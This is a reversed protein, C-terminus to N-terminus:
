EEDGLPRNGPSTRIVGFEVIYQGMSTRSIPADLGYDPPTISDVRGELLLHVSADAAPPLQVLPNTFVTFEERIESALTTGIPVNVSPPQEM